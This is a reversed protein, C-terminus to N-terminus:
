QEMERHLSTPYSEEGGRTQLNTSNEGNLKVLDKISM